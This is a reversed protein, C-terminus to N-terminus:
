LKICSHKNQNWTTKLLKGNIENYNYHYM